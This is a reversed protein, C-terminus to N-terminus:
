INQSVNIGHKYQKIYNLRGIASVNRINYLSEIEILM